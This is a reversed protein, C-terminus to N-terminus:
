YIYTYVKKYAKPAVNFGFKNDLEECAKHQNSKCYVKNFAYIFEETSKAKYYKVIDELEEYSFALIHKNKSSYNTQLYKNYDALITPNFEQEINYKTETFLSASPSMGFLKKIKNLIIQNM